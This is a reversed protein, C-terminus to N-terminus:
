GSKALSRLTKSIKSELRSRFIARSKIDRQARIQEIARQAYPGPGSADTALVWPVIATKTWITATSKALPPLDKLRRLADLSERSLGKEQEIRSQDISWCHRLAKENSTNHRRCYDRVFNLRPILGDLYRVMPSDPRFRAAKRTDLPYDAGLALREAITDFRADASTHRHRLVPWARMQRAVPAIHRPFEEVLQDLLAVRLYTDWAFGAVTNESDLDGDSLCDVHPSAKQIHRLMEVAEPGRGTRDGFISLLLDDNRTLYTRHYEIQNLQRKIMAVALDLREALATMNAKSKATVDKGIKPHIELIYLAQGILELSKIAPAAWEQSLVDPDRKLLLLSLQLGGWVDENKYHEDCKRPTRLCRDHWWAFMKRKQIRTLRRRSPNISNLM